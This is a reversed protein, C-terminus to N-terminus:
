LQVFSSAMGSVSPALGQQDEGVSIEEDLGVSIEEEEEEEEEGEAEGGVELGVEVQLEDDGGVASCVRRTTSDHQNDNRSCKRGNCWETAKGEDVPKVKVEKRTGCSVCVAATHENFTSCVRCGWQSSRAASAPAPARPDSSALPAPAATYALSARTSCDSAALAVAADGPEANSQTDAVASANSWAASEASSAPPPPKAGSTPEAAAIPVSVTAPAKGSLPAAAPPAESQRPVGKLNIEAGVLRLGECRRCRTDEARNRHKCGLCGWDGAAASTKGAPAGNTGKFAAAQGLQAGAPGATTGGASSLPRPAITLPAAKVPSDEASRASAAAAATKVLRAPRKGPHQTHMPTEGVIPRKGFAAGSRGCATSTEAGPPCVSASVTAAAGGAASSVLEAVRAAGGVAGRAIGLQIPVREMRMPPPPPPGVGGAIVRSTETGVSTDRGGVEARGGGSSGDGREAGKDKALTRAKKSSAVYAVSAATVTATMTSYRKSRGATNERKTAAVASDVRARGSAAGALRASSGGVTWASSSSSSSSAQGLPREAEKKRRIVCAPCFWDGEPVVSLGVCEPHYVAECGDCCILDGGAHCGGCASQKKSLRISEKLARYGDTQKWGGYYRDVLECVQRGPLAKQAAYFNKSGEELMARTYMAAEHPLWPRALNLDPSLKDKSRAGPPISSVGGQVQRKLASEGGALSKLPRCWFADQTGPAGARGVHGRGGRSAGGSSGGVVGGGAGRAAVAAAGGGWAVASRTTNATVTTSGAVIPCGGGGRAVDPNGGKTSSSSWSSSPPPAAALRAATERAVIAKASATERTSNSAMLYRSKWSRSLNRLLKRAEGYDGEFRHVIELCKDHSVVGAFEKVLEALERPAGKGKPSPVVVSPDWVQEFLVDEPPVYDESSVPVPLNLPDVQHATGVLSVKKPYEKKMMTSKRRPLETWRRRRKSGGGGGGKRGLLRPKAIAEAWARELLDGFKEEREAMHILVQRNSDFYDVRCKAGNQGRVVGPPLYYVDSPRPGRVRKWGFEQALGPWVVDDFARKYEKIADEPLPGLEGVPRKPPPDPLVMRDRERVSDRSRRSSDGGGDGGTEDADRGRLPAGATRVDAPLAMSVVSSAAPSSSADSATGSANSAVSGNGTSLLVIQDGPDVVGESGAATGLRAVCRKAGKGTATTEGGTINVDRAQSDAKGNACSFGAASEGTATNTASTAAVAGAAAAAAAAVRAAVKAPADARGNRGALSQRGPQEHELRVPKKIVRGLRTAAATSVGATAAAAAAASMSGEPATAGGRSSMASSFSLALASLLQSPAPGAAAPGVSGPDISPQAKHQLDTNEAPPHTEAASSQVGGGTTVPWPQLEERVVAEDSSSISSSRSRLSAMVPTNGEAACAGAAVGMATAERRGSGSKLPSPTRVLVGRAAAAVADFNIIGLSTTPGPYGAVQQLLEIVSTVGVLRDPREEDLSGDAPAARRMAEELAESAEGVPPPFFVMVKGPMHSSGPTIGGNKLPPWVLKWFQTEDKSNASAAM